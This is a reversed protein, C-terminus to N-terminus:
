VRAYNSLSISYALFQNSCPWFDEALVFKVFRNVGKNLHLLPPYRLSQAAQGSNPCILLSRISCHWYRPLHPFLPGNWLKNFYFILYGPYSIQDLWTHSSSSIVHQNHMRFSSQDPQLANCIKPSNELWTNLIFKSESKCPEFILKFRRKITSAIMPVFTSCLENKSCNSLPDIKM